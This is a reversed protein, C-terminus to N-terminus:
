KYFLYLVVRCGLGVKYFDLVHYTFYFGWVRSGVYFCTWEFIEELNLMEEPIILKSLFFFLLSNCNRYPHCQLPCSFGQRELRLYNFTRLFSRCRQVCGTLFDQERTCVHWFGSLPLPFTFSDMSPLIFTFWYTPVSPDVQVAYAHIGGFLNYVKTFGQFMSVLVTLM